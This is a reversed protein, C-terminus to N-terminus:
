ITKLYQSIVELINDFYEKQADDLRHERLSKEFNNAKEYSTELGLISFKHKIRHVNDEIQKFDINRASIQYKKQEDPFETKIVNILENRISEDGRSLKEIYELNPKEM